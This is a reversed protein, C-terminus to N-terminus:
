KAALPAVINVLENDSVTDTQWKHQSALTCYPPPPLSIYLLILM